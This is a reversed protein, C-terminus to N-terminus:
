ETVQISVPLFIMPTAGQGVQVLRWDPHARDSMDACRWTWAGSAMLAAFEAQTVRRPKPPLTM